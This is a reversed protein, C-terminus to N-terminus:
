YDLLPALTHRLFLVAFQQTASPHLASFEALLGLEAGGVPERVAV